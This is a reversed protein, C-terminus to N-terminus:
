PLHFKALYEQKLDLLRDLQDQSGVIFESDELDQYTYAELLKEQLIKTKTEACNFYPIFPITRYYPRQELGKLDIKDVLVLYEDGPKMLNVYSGWFFQETEEISFDMWICYLTITRGTLSADGAYVELVEAEQSLCQVLDERKGTAKVRIAIPKEDLMSRIDEFYADDKGAMIYNLQFDNVTSIDMLNIRDTYTTRSYLGIGAAGVCLVFFVIWGRM